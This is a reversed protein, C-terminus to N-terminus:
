ERAADERRERLLEDVLSVSGPITKCFYEQAERLAQQQTKIQVTGADMVIQVTDGASIKMATRIDSPLVVRGSSDIKTRFIRHENGYTAEM